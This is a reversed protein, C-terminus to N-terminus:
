AMLGDDDHAKRLFACQQMDAPIERHLGVPCARFTQIIMSISVAKWLYFAHTVSWTAGGIRIPGTSSAPLEKKKRKKQLSTSVPLSCKGYSAYMM